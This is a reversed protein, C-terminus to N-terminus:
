PDRAALAADRQAKEVHEIDVKAQAVYAKICGNFDNALANFTRVDNNHAGMAKINRVDPAAGPKQDPQICDPPPYFGVPMNGPATPRPPPNTGNAEAAATNVMFMIWDIDNPAKQVYANICAGFDMLQMNYRKVAANYRVVEDREIDAPKHLSIKEPKECSPRVYFDPVLNGPPAAIHEQALAASLVMTGSMAVASLTMRSM